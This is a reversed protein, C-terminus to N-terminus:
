TQDVFLLNPVFFTEFMLQGIKKMNEMLDMSVGTILIQHESPDIKLENDFIHGFMKELVDLDQVIGRRM